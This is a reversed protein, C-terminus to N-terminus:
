FLPLFKQSFPNKLRSFFLASPRKSPINFHYYYKRKFIWFLIPLYLLPGYLQNQFANLLQFERCINDTHMRQLIFFSSFPFFFFQLLLHNSNALISICKLQTKITESVSQMTHLHHCNKLSYNIVERLLLLVFVFLLRKFYRCGIFSALLHYKFYIRISSYFYGWLRLLNLFCKTRLIQVPIQHM